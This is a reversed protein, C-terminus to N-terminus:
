FTNDKIVYDDGVGFMEYILDENGNFELKDYKNTPEDEWKPEFGLTERDIGFIIPQIDMVNWIKKKTHRLDKRILNKHSGDLLCELRFLEKNILGSVISCYSKPKNWHRRHKRSKHFIGTKDQLEKFREIIRWRKAYRKLLKAPTPQGDFFLHTDEDKFDVLKKYLTDKDQICISNIDLGYKNAKKVIHYNAKARNKNLKLLSVIKTYLGKYDKKKIEPEYFKKVSNFLEDVKKNLLKQDIKGRLMFHMKLGNKTISKQNKTANIFLQNLHMLHIKQQYDLQNAITKM